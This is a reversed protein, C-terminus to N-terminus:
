KNYTAARNAIGQQFKMASTELKDPTFNGRGVTVNPHRGDDGTAPTLKTRSRPSRAFATTM